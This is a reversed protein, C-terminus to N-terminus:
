ESMNTIIDEMDELAKEIAVEKGINAMDVGEVMLKEFKKIGLFKFIDHFYNVGHNFKSSFLMPYEGGSSQIYVMKREKDDLLGKVEEPSVKIVKDLLIICDIYRKLRSPFMVSWMPAAIVYYDASIFQDCLQNIRDVVMKDEQSLADYEPGSVTEARGKFYKHNIEPIDENYLDLEMLECDKNRELFKNVFARGVTKSVSDVEAKSNVPIYLLKKM